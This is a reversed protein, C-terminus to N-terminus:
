ILQVRIMSSYPVIKDAFGLCQFSNWDKAGPLPYAVSGFFELSQLFDSRQKDNTQNEDHRLVSSWNANLQTKKRKLNQVYTFVVGVYHVAIKESKIKVKKHKGM